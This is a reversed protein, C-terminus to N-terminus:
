SARARAETADPRTSTAEPAEARKRTGAEEQAPTPETPTGTSAEEQAPPPSPNVAPPVAVKQGSLHDLLVLLDDTVEILRTAQNQVVPVLESRMVEYASRGDITRLHRLTGDYDIRLLLDMIRHLQALGDRHNDLIQCLEISDLLDYKLTSTAELIALDVNHVNVNEVNAVFNQMKSRNTAITHRLAELLQLRRQSLQIAEQRNTKREQRRSVWLAAVVGIFVGLVTVLLGQWFSKDLFDAIQTMTWFAFM